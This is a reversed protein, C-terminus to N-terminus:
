VKILDNAAHDFAGVAQDVAMEPLGQAVQIHFNEIGAGQGWRGQAM